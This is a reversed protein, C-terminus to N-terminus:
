DKLLQEALFDGELEVVREFEEGVYVDFHGVPLSVLRANACKSAAKRVSPQPVLTDKDAGVILVPCGIRKTYMTPRYALLTLGIRAPCENKWQTGEPVLAMYGPRSDATNMMGFKGPDEVIPVCHPPRFAAARALDLLAHVTAELVFRIKFGLAVAVGDVFPVQSVVASVPAFKAAAVLAHGGSFSTGWLGLRGADVEGLGRAHEIAAGWDAVHRFPNVLNRPEGDSAGFNRYDFLYVAMGKSVFREAFAPLRFTSEAGFGHAMVVVPPREAEPLYLTGACRTGESTFDSDVTKM